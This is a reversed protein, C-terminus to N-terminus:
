LIQLSYYLSVKLEVQRRAVDEEEPEFRRCLQDSRTQVKVVEELIAETKSHLQERDALEEKMERETELIHKSFRCLCYHLTTGNILKGFVSKNFLTLFCFCTIYGFVNSVPM